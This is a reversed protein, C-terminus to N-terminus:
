LGGGGEGAEEETFLGDDWLTAPGHALALFTSVPRVCTTGGGGRQEVRQWRVPGPLLVKLLFALKSTLM